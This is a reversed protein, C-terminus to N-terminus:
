HVGVSTTPYRLRFTELASSSQERAGFVYWGEAARQGIVADPDDPSSIPGLWVKAKLITFLCLEMLDSSFEPWHGPLMEDLVSASTELVFVDGEVEFRVVVRFEM